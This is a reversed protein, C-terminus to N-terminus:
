PAPTIETMKVPELFRAKWSDWSGPSLTAASGGIQGALANAFAQTETELWNASTGPSSGAVAYLNPTTNDKRLIIAMNNGETTSPATTTTFYDWPNHRTGLPKERHWHLHSPVGGSTGMKAVLDGRNVHVNNATQYSQLHQYVDYWGSGDDAEMRLVIGAGGQSGIQRIYAGRPAYLNDGADGDMDVGGLSGRQGHNIWSQYPDHTVVGAANQDWVVTPNGPPIGYTM